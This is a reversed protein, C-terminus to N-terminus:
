YGSLSGTWRGGTLRATSAWRMLWQRSGMSAPTVRPDWYARVRVSSWGLSSGLVTVVALRQV